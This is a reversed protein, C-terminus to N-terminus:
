GKTNPEIPWTGDDERFSVANMVRRMKAFENDGATMQIFERDRVMEEWSMEEWADFRNKAMAMKVFEMYEPHKTREDNTMNLWGQERLQNILEQRRQKMTERTKDALVDLAELQRYGDEQKRIAKQEAERERNWAEQRKLHERRDKKFEWIAYAFFGAIIVWIPIFM